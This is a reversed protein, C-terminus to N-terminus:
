AKQHVALEYKKGNEFTLLLSNGSLIQIEAATNRLSYKVLLLVNKEDTEGNEEKGQEAMENKEQSDNV